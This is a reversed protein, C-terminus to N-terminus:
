DEMLGPLKEALTRALSRHGAATLHMGDCSNFEGLGQGDLFTCGQRTCVDQYYVSLMRSKPIAELGMDGVCPHNKM